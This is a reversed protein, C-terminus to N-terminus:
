VTVVTNRGYNRRILMMNAMNEATHGGKPGGGSGRQVGEQGGKSGRRLGKPGGGSRRQVRTNM